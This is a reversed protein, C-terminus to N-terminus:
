RTDSYLKCWRPRRHTKIYKKYKVCFMKYCKVLKLNKCDACHIEIKM